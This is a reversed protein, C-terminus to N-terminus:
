FPWVIPLVLLVVILVVLTLPSTEQAEEALVPFDPESGLVRLRERPGPLLLADGIRLDM